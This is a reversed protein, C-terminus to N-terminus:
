KGGNRFAAASKSCHDTIENKAHCPWISYDYREQGATRICLARSYMVCSFIHRSKESSCESLVGNEYFHYGHRAIM